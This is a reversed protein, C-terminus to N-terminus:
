GRCAIFSTITAINPASTFIDAKPLRSRHLPKTRCLGALAERTGLNGFGGDPLGTSSNPLRSGPPREAQRITTSAACECVDVVTEGTQTSHFLPFHRIRPEVHCIARKM